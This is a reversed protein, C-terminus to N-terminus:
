DDLELLLLAELYEILKESKEVILTRGYFLALVEEMIKTNTFSELEFIKNSEAVRRFFLSNAM